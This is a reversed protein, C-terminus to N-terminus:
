RTLEAKLIQSIENAKDLIMLHTGDRIKINCDVFKFPLIRDAAGHIHVTNKIRDINSWNMIKDLAWRLFFPDTDLLIQKLLQRDPESTAGFLWELFFNSRTLLYTPMVRHIRLKGAARFYWPIETRTKVSAILIVKKTEIQKAVELAMIGGFSFGILIPQQTKIQARIRAAYEQIPERDFPPIWKIHTVAFGNLDLRHFVREDVGLGSFIYIEQTM